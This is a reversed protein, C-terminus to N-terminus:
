EGFFFLRLHIRSIQPLQNTLGLQVPSHCGMISDHCAQHDQHHHDGKASQRTKRRRSKPVAQVLLFIRGLAAPAIPIIIAAMGIRGGAVSVLEAPALQSPM